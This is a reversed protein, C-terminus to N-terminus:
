DNEAEWRAIRADRQDAKYKTMDAKHESDALRIRGRFYGVYLPCYNSYKRDLPAYYELKVGRRPLEQIWIASPVPLYKLLRTGDAPRIALYGGYRHWKWLVALWCNQWTSDPMVKRAAYSLAVVGCLLAMATGWAALAVSSVLFHLVQRVSRMTVIFHLAARM